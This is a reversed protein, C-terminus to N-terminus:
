ILQRKQTARLLYIFFPAGVAATIAGIPLEAPSVVTRALMDALLLLCAGGLASAPLVLRQDSTFAVRIIHPVVLGVFGIIGSFAVSVGIALASLLVIILKVREVAVGSHYAEAEGLAIANLPRAVALLGIIALGVLPTLVYLKDWTAASLDGLTWFTYARLQNDDAYFTAIGIVAAALASIAVGGLILYTIHMRNAAQGIRLTFFTAALGGLFSFLPLLWTQAWEALQPFRTSVFMIVFIAGVAAGSSIGIIGPEVLPNRFLGQLAAGSLGLAAGILVTFLLRPLRISLLVIQATDETDAVIGLKQGIIRLVDTLTISVAGVVLSSLLVGVLLIALLSLTLTRSNSKRVTLVSPM